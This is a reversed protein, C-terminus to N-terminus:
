RLNVEIDPGEQVRDLLVSKKSHLRTSGGLTHSQDM